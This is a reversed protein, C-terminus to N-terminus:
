AMNGPIHGHSPSRAAQIPMDSALKNPLVPLWILAPISMVVLLRTNVPNAAAEAAARTVCASAWDAKDGASWSGNSGALDCANM